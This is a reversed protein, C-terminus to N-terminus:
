WRARGSWRQLRLRDPRGERVRSVTEPTITTTSGPTTSEEPGAEEVRSVATSPKDPDVDCIVHQIEERLRSRLRYPRHGTVLEYLLVGLSYIDSATTIPDGRVQEPSAYEPTM